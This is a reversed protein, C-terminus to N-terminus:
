YDYSSHFIGKKVQKYWLKVHFGFLLSFNTSSAYNTHTLLELESGPKLGPHKTDCPQVKIVYVTRNSQTTQLLASVTFLSYMESLRTNENLTWIGSSKWDLSVSLNFSIWLIGLVHDTVQWHLKEWSQNTQSYSIVKKTKKTKEKVRRVIRGEATM